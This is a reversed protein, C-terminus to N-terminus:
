LTDGRLAAKEKESLKSFQTDDLKTPDLEMAGSRQGHGGNLQAPQMRATNANRTIGMRKRIAAASQSGTDQQEGEEGSQQQGDKGKGGNNNAAPKEYRPGVKNVAKLLAEAPSVGKSIHFDRLAIVDEIAEDNKDKSKVDLFPYAEIADAVAEDFASKTNNATIEALADARAVRRIEDDIQEELTEAKEIDGDLLAQLKQKRLAKVDIVQQQQQEGQQQGKGTAKQLQEEAIRAREEARIRADREKDRAGIVENFRAKPIMGGSAGAEAGEGEQEEEEGGEDAGAEPGAVRRLNEATQEPHLEDGRDEEEGEGGEDGADPNNLDIEEELEPDVKGNM